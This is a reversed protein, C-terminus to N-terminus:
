RMGLRTRCDERKIETPLSYDWKTGKVSIEVVPRTKRISRVPWEDDSIEVTAEPARQRVPEEDEEDGSLVVPPEPTKQSPKDLLARVVASTKEEAAEPSIIGMEGIAKTFANAFVALLRLSEESAPEPDMTARM